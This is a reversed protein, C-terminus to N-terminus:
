KSLWQKADQSKRYAYDYVNGAVQKVAVSAQKVAPAANASVEGISTRSAVAAENISAKAKLLLKNTRRSFEDAAASIRKVHEPHNQPACLLEVTVATGGVMLGVIVIAPGTIAGGLTGAVYGASGTLIYAESSHLVATLGATQAVATATAAAGGALASISAVNASQSPAYSCIVGSGALAVSSFGLFILASVIFRKMILGIFTQPIPESADREFRKNPM